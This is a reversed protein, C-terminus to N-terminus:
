RRLVLAVKVVVVCVSEGESGFHWGMVFAAGRGCQVSQGSILGIM